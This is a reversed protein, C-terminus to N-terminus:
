ISFPIKMNTVPLNKAYQRFSYKEYFIHIYEEVSTINESFFADICCTKDFICSSQCSCCKERGNAYCLFNKLDISTSHLSSPLFYELIDQYITQNLTVDKSCAHVPIIVVLILALNRFKGRKTKM